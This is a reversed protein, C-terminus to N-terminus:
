PVYLRRGNLSVMPLSAAPVIPAQVLKDGNGNEQAKNATHWFYFAASAAALAVYWAPHLKM